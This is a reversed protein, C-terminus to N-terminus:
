AVVREQDIVKLTAATAGIALGIVNVGPVVLMAAGVAGQGLTRWRHLRQYAVKDKYRWRRRAWVADHADYAAFRATAIAGLIMAAVPGVLPIVLGVVLVAAMVLLYVVIRRASHVAGIAIDALFRLLRFRPAAIGTVKEEIKESLMENFPGAILAALSIFISISAIALVITAAFRLLNDAFDGPVIAAIAAIPAALVGLIWGILAILILAAVVAPALM